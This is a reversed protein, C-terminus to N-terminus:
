ERKGTFLKWKMKSKITNKQSNAAQKLEEIIQETSLGAKILLSINCVMAHKSGRIICNDDKQVIGRFCFNQENQTIMVLDQMTNNERDFEEVNERILDIFEALTISEAM